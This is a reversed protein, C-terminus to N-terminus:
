WSRTTAPMRAAPTLEPVKEVALLAIATPSPYPPPKGAAVRATASHSGASRRDVPMPMMLAPVATPETKAGGNIPSMRASEVQLHINKKERPRPKSHTPQHSTLVRDSLAACCDSAPVGAEIEHIRSSRERWTM